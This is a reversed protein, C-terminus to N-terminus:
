WPNSSAAMPKYRWDYETAPAKESDEAQQCSICLSAWPVAVLRRASIAHECKQCVGYSGDAIRNLASRVERLLAAKRDIGRLALDCGAELQVQELQDATRQVFIDSPDIPQQLEMLKAKLEDLVDNLDFQTQIADYM